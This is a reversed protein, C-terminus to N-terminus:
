ENLATRNAELRHLYEEYWEAKAIDQESSNCGKKGARFRYKYANCRCFNAVAEKGFMDKMIEICEREGQYHNPHNVNNNSTSM